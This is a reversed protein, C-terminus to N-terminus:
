PVGERDDNRWGAKELRAFASRVEAGEHFALVGRLRRTQGPTCDPFKPDAHLCPCKANGWTSHCHQWATIVWRRGDRSRCAAYPAAFVKNDDVQAEFGRAHGLLVCNQVRLDTLRQKTGNTLTLELRVLQPTPAVRACFAIGNPLKRELDLTGDARRNWELKEMALGQKDWITPIHTHALYTLGLDSWIAEPLDVVVHGGEDWPPFVSVKAERQPRIAGELFGLRPHRGGPYPLVLLPAGAARKPRGAPTIGFRKLAATAEGASLGTAASIEAVTFRHHWVMNELWYRLEADNAPRRAEPTGPPTPQGDASSTLLSLLVVFAPLLRM